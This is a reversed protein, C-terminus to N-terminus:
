HSTLGLKVWEERQVETLNPATTIEKSLDPQAQKEVWGLIIVAERAQELELTQVHLKLMLPGVILACGLCFALGLAKLLEIMLSTEWFKVDLLRVVDFWDVRRLDVVDLRAVVAFM